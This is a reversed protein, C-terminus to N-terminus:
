KKGVDRIIREAQDCVNDYDFGRSLGLRILKARIEYETGENITRLKRSMLEHLKASSVTADIGGLSEAIIDDSIGKQRLAARIKHRGWGSLSSKDKVYAASYRRDDIFRQEILTKLVKYRDTENEVGWRIMLRLADGSSRESKSCLRMLASLAQEPTKIKREYNYKKQEVM